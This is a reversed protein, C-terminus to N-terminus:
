LYIYSKGLIQYCNSKGSTKFNIKLEGPRCAIHAKAMVLRGDDYNKKWFDEGFGSVWYSDFKSMRLIDLKSTIDLTGALWGIHGAHTYISCLLLVLLQFFEIFLELFIM